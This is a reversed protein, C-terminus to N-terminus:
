MGMVVTVHVYFTMPMAKDYDFCLRHRLAKTLVLDVFINFHTHALPYHLGSILVFIGVNSLVLNIKKRAINLM